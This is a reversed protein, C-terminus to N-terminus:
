EPNFGETSKKSGESYFGGKWTRVICVAGGLCDGEDGHQLKQRHNSDTKEM